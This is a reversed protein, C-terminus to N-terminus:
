MERWLLFLNRIGLVRFTILLSTRTEYPLKSYFFEFEIQSSNKKSFKMNKLDGLSQDSKM